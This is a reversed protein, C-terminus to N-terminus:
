TYVLVKEEDKSVNGSITKLYMGQYVKYDVGHM